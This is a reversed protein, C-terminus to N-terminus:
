SSEEHLDCDSIWEGKNQSFPDCRFFVKQIDFVRRDLRELNDMVSKSYTMVKKTQSSIEQISIEMNMMGSRGRLRLCGIVFEDIEVFGNRDQDLLDFFLNPDTVEIGLVSFLTLVDERQLAAKLEDLSLESQCTNVMTRYLNHLRSAMARSERLDLQHRLDEDMRAMALGENVFVGTIINLAAIVTLCVFVVFLISYFLSVELLLRVVDWWDIGGSMAMFLTLLTQPLSGFFTKLSDVNANDQGAQDIYSAVANDLVIAFMLIVGLLLLMAALLALSSSYFALVMLQLDELMPLFQLLRLLRLSRVVRLLRLAAAYSPSNGIVYLYVLETTSVIVMAFDFANWRWGDGVCFQQQLAVMRALLEFVFVTNVTTDICIMWVPKIFTSGLGSDYVEVASRITADTVLAVYVADLLIILTVLCQFVKSKMIFEALHCRMLQTQFLQSTKSSKLDPIHKALGHTQGRRIQFNMYREYAEKVRESNEQWVRESRLSEGRAHEVTENSQQSWQNRRLHRGAMRERLAAISPRWSSQSTRPLPLWGHSVFDSDGKEVKKERGKKGKPSEDRFKAPVVSLGPAKRGKNKKDMGQSSAFMKSVPIGGSDALREAVFLSLALEVSEADEEARRDTLKIRSKRESTADSTKSSEVDRSTAMSTPTPSPTLGEGTNNNLIGLRTIHGSVLGELKAQHEEWGRRQLTFFERTLEAVAEAETQLLHLEDCLTHKQTDPFPTISCM